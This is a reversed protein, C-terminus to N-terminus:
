TSNSKIVHNYVDANRSSADHFNLLNDEFVYLCSDLDGSAKRSSRTKLRQNYIMGARPHNQLM